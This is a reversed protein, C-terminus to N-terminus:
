VRVKRRLVAGSEGDLAITSVGTNSPDRMRVMLAARDDLVDELLANVLQM